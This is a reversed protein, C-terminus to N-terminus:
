NKATIDVSEGTPLKAWMALVMPSTETEEVEVTKHTKVLGHLMDLNVPTYAVVCKDCIGSLGFMGLIVAHLRNATDCCLECEKRPNNMAVLIGDEPNFDVLNVVNAM